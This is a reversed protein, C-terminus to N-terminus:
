DIINIEKYGEENRILDDLIADIEEMSHTTLATFPWIGLLSTKGDEQQEFLFGLKEGTKVLKFLLVVFKEGKIRLEGAEVIKVGMINKFYHMEGEERGREMLSQILGSYDRQSLMEENSVFTMKLTEAEGGSIGRFSVLCMNKFGIENITKDM